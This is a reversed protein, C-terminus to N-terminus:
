NTLNYTNLTLSSTNLWLEFGHTSNCLCAWREPSKEICGTLNYEGAEVPYQASVNVSINTCNEVQAVQIYDGGFFALGSLACLLLVFAFVGLLMKKM